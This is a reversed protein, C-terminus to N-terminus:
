VCVFHSDVHKRYNKLSELVKKKYACTTFDRVGDSTLLVHIDFM